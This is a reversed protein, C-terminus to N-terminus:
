IEIDQGSEKAKALEDDIKQQVDKPLPALNVTEGGTDKEGGDKSQKKGKKGGKPSEKRGEEQLGEQDRKTLPKNGAYNYPSLDAFKEAM